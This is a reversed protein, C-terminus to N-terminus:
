VTRHSQGLYATFNEANSINTGAASFAVSSQGVTPTTSVWGTTRYIGFGSNIGKNSGVTISDGAGAPESLNITTIMSDGVNISAPACSISIASCTQGVNVSNSVVSGRAPMAPISVTYYASGNGSFLSSTNLVFSTQGDTSAMPYDFTPLVGTNSSEMHFTPNAGQANDWPDSHIILSIHKSTNPNGGEVASLTASTLSQSAPVYDPIAEIAQRLEIIHIWRILVSADLRAGAGSVGAQQSWVRGPLYAEVGQRLSNIHEYRVLTSTTLPDNQFGLAGAGYAANIINLNTRLESVHPMRVLFTTDLTPDTWTFNM